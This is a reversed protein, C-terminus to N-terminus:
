DPPRVSSSRLRKLCAWLVAQNSNVVPKGMKAEIPAIAEVQTTNTCSLFYGDAGDYAHAIALDVWVEPPRLSTITAAPCRSHWMTSLLAALRVFTISRTTMSMKTM